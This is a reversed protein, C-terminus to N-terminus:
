IRMLCGGLKGVLDLQEFSESISIGGNWFSVPTFEASAQKARDTDPCIKARM